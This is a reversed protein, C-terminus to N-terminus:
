LSEQKFMESYFNASTGIIRFSLIAYGEPIGFPDDPLGEQIHTIEVTLYVGNTYSKTEPDYRNLQLLNGVQYNRDNKRFEAKKKGFVIDRFPVPWCKLEIPNM